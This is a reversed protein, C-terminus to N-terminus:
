IKFHIVDGDQVYYKKGEIRLEGKAKAKQWSGIEILTRWNIVEAAIFKEYFDSHIIGGAEPLYTMRKVPWAQIQKELILTYFTILGLSSYAKKILYDLGREELGIEKLYEESEEKSLQNLENELKASLPIFGKDKLEKFKQSLNKESLNAVKIIPKQTLFQLDKVIAKEKNNFEIESIMKGQDLFKKIKELLILKEQIEKDGSKAEKKIKELYKNIMELDKLILEIKITEMDNEPNVTGVIDPDDFFRVIEVLCDCERIHALFQNGLGEGKHAGKVLGAIDIFKIGAPIKKSLGLRDALKDLRSDPVEIIGQNPEITCFPYNSINALQKKLLANFLTSKGVNPLGIIGVSLSM